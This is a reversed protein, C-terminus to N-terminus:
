GTQEMCEQRGIILLLECYPSECYFKFETLNQDMRKRLHRLIKSAVRKLSSNWNYSASTGFYKSGRRDKQDLRGM